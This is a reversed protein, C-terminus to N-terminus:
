PKENEEQDNMLDFDQNLEEESIIPKQNDDFTRGLSFDGLSIAKNRAMNNSIEEFMRHPDNPDIPNLEEVSKSRTQPRPSPSEIHEENISGRMKDRQENFKQKGSDFFEDMQDDISDDIVDSFDDGLDMSEFVEVDFQSPPEHNEELPENFMSFSESAPADPYDLQIISLDDFFGSRVEYALDDSQGVKEHPLHGAKQRQVDQQLIFLSGKKM